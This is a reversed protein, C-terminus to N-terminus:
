KKTVLEAAMISGLYKRLAQNIRRVVRDIETGITNSKSNLPTSIPGNLTEFIELVSISEPKRALRFGGGPGKKALVIRARVLQVLIKLLFRTPIDCKQAIVHSPTDLKLRGEEGLYAVALLGYSTTRNLKM